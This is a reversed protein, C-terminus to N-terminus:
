PWGGWAIAPYHVGRVPAQSLNPQSGSLLVPESQGTAVGDLLV